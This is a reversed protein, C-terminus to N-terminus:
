RESRGRTLMSAVIRPLLLVLLVIVPIAIIVAWVSDPRTILANLGFVIVVAWILTRIM